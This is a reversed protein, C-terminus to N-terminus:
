PSVANVVLRLEKVPTISGCAVLPRYDTPRSAYHFHLEVLSRAGGFELAKQLSQLDIDPQESPSDVNLRWMSFNTTGSLIWLFCQWSHTANM